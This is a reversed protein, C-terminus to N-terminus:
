TSAGTLKWHLLNVEMIEPSVENSTTYTEMSNTETPIEVLRGVTRGGSPAKVGCHARVMQCGAGVWLCTCFCLGAPPGGTARVGPVMSTIVETPAFCSWRFYNRLLFVGMYILLLDDSPCPLLIIEISTFIEAMNIEMRVTFDIPAPLLLPRGHVITPTLSM